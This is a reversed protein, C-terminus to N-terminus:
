LLVETLIDSSYYLSFINDFTTTAATPPFNSYLTTACTNDPFRRPLSPRLPSILFLPLIVSVLGLLVSSLLIRRVHPSTHKCVWIWGSFWELPLMSCCAIYALGAGQKARSAIWLYVQDCLCLDPLLIVNSDSSWSSKEASVEERQLSVLCEEMWRLRGLVIDEVQNRQTRAEMHLEETTPFPSATSSSWCSSSGDWMITSTDDDLFSSSYIQRPKMLGVQDDDLEDADDDCISFTTSNQHHADDDDDEYPSDPTCPAIPPISSVGEMFDRLGFRRPPTQPPPMCSDDEDWSSDPCALTEWERESSGVKCHREEAVDGDEWALSNTPLHARALRHPQPNYSEWFNMWENMENATRECFDAQVFSEELYSELLTELTDDQDSSISCSSCTSMSVADPPAEAAHVNPKLSLGAENIAMIITSLGM